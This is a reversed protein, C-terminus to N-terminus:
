DALLDAATWFLMCDRAGRDLASLQLFAVCGPLVPSTRREIESFLKGLELKELVISSTLSPRRKLKCRGINVEITRLFSRNVANQSSQPTNISRDCSLRHILGSGSAEARAL